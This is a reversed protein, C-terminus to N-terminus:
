IFNLKPFDEYSLFMEEQPELWFKAEGEGCVFIKNM